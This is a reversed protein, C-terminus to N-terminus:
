HKFYSLTGVVLEIFILVIILVTLVDERNSDIKSQYITRMDKIIELKKEIAARWSNLGLNEVLLEYIEAYYPEGALLISSELKETIVSIDVRLRSLEAVPSYTPAFPLYLSLPIKIRKDEYLSTLKADLMRDFVQLQLQQINAFEFLGLIEEYENDAVFASDTDVIILDGRFYGTASEIIDNKQDESLHQEEFRLISAITSGHIEKLQEASIVDPQSKIQVVQYSTRLAFFKPQNIHKKIKKFVSQADAVSQELYKDNIENIMSRLDVLTEEFTIQYCLTIVGFSHIKCSICASTGHPHPPEVELPKHYYKFYKPLKLPRQLLLQEDEIAELNIEDGVDFAQFIFISGEFNMANQAM